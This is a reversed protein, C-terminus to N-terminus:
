GDGRMRPFAAETNRTTIADMEEVTVGRAAALAALTHAVNAPRNPKGRRPVPALYPSDTEVMLRDEPLAAAAARLADSKPFTLPGAFSAYWGREAVEAVHDPLSFCHLVVVMGRAHEDLLALTEDAAERTHIVIPLGAERALGIQAVFARRQADPASHNYHHDLGCEGVAVVRPNRTLDRIWAEDDPGFADADHPHVGVVAFVEPHRETLAVAGESSARGTGITM